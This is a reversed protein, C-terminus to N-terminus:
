KTPLEKWRDTLVFDYLKMEHNKEPYTFMPSPFKETPLAIVNGNSRFFLYITNNIEGMDFSGILVTKQFLKSNASKVMTFTTDSKQAFASAGALLMAFLFTNKM